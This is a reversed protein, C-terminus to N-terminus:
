KKFKIFFDFNKFPMQHINIAIKSSKFFLDISRDDDEYFIVQLNKILQKIKSNDRNKRDKGLLFRFSM